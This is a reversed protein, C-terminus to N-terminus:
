RVREGLTVQGFFAADGGARGDTRGESVSASFKSERFGKMKLVSM